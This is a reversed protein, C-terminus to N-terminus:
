KNVYRIDTERGAPFSTRPSCLSHCASNTVKNYEWKFCHRSCLASDIVVRQILTVIKYASPKEPM